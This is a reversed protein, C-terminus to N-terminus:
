LTQYVECVQDAIHEWDYRSLDYDVHRCEGDIVTQLKKKLSDVDGVPFYCDDSLGIEKNAPIDSVIVPLSYSMAELLAIPLGEHSSPLVFCRANTLLSHLKRGKVYGTLVVGNQRATEKLHKSYPTEYFCDGAIVLKLGKMDMSSCAEVLHHLNKEEEIRCMGLVYKGKEIHLEEFYEPYDCRDPTSVGNFIICCDKRHYKEILSQRIGKSIAIVRNSFKVGMFEGLRLVTKATWKWKDREYDAGHHTLVVKMGLVRAFPALLGPGIAHIHVVDAKLKKAAWIAKFTHVIVELSKMQPAQIGILHVHHYEDAHDKRYNERCVVTVDYGRDAVLPYLEECHTEIGGMINPIGRTGVVVIRM